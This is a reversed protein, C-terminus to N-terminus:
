GEAPTCDPRRNEAAHDRRRQEADEHDRHEVDDELRQAFAREPALRARRDADVRLSAPTGSPLSLVFGRSRRGTRNPPSSLPRLAAPRGALSAYASFASIRLTSIHRPPPLSPM